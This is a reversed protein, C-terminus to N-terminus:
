LSKKAFIESYKAYTKCFRFGRFSFIKPLVKGGYIEHIGCKEIKSRLTDKIVYKM